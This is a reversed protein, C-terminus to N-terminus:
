KILLMKRTEVAEGATLRVLYTGSPLDGATFVISHAGAEQRENILTAVPQGLGDYVILRVQGAVPLTYGITTEPNFPNPYNQALSFKAPVGKAEEEVATPQPPDDPVRYYMGNDTGMWGYRDNPIYVVRPMKQTYGDVEWTIGGDRSKLLGARSDIIVGDSRYISGGLYVLSDGLAWLASGQVLEDFYQRLQWTAGGDHTIFLRVEPTGSSVSAYGIRDNVFVVNDVWWNTDINATQRWTQGGDTSLALTSGYIVIRRENIPVIGTIAGYETLRTVQWTTGNDTSQGILGTASDPYTNEGGSIWLTNGIAVIFSWDNNTASHYQQEWNKGGDVTHLIVGPGGRYANSGVIWGEQLNRFYVDGFWAKPLSERKDYPMFTRGRDVTYFIRNQSGVVWGHLTDPFSIGMVMHGPDDTYTSPLWKADASATFALVVVTVALVLRKM